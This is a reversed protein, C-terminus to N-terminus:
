CKDVDYANFMNNQILIDKDVVVKGVVWEEM